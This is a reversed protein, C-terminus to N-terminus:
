DFGAIPQYNDNIWDRITSPAHTSRGPIHLCSASIIYRLKSYSVRAIYQSLPLGGERAFAWLMRSATAVIGVTAFIQTVVVVSAQAKNTM